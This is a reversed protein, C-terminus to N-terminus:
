SGQLHQYGVEEYKGTKGCGCWPDKGRRDNILQQQQPAHQLRHCLALICLCLSMTFLLYCVPVEQEMSWISFGGGILSCIRAYKTFVTPLIQRLDESGHGDGIYCMCLLSISNILSYIAPSYLSDCTKASLFHVCQVNSSYQDTSITSQNM